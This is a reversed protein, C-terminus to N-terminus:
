RSACCWQRAVWGDSTTASWGGVVAHLPAYIAIVDSPGPVEPLLWLGPPIAESTPLKVTGGVVSQEGRANPLLVTPGDAVRDHEAVVSPPAAGAAWRVSHGCEICFRPKGAPLHAGCHGCFRPTRQQSSPTSM